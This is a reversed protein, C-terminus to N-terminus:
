ACSLHSLLSDSLRVSRDNAVPGTGGEQRSSPCHESSDALYHTCRIIHATAGDVYAAVDQSAAPAGAGPDEHSWFM